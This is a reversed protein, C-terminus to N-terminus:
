GQMSRDDIFNQMQDIRYDDKRMSNSLLKIELMEKGSSTYQDWNTLGTGVNPDHNNVFSVFYRRFAKSPSLDLFYEFLIDSAHFTGLFPVIDHLASSFFTWVKVDSSNQIMLRRPAQFILDGFFASMRKWQPTLANLLGTRFPSGQSLSAPYLTLIRDLTEDTAKPALWKIWKRVDATTTANFTLAGFLTGEDENSGTIYPVKTFQGTKFLDYGLKPIIDGDPRPGFALTMPLAGFLDSFGYYNYADQIVELSQTRLCELQNSADACGAAKVFTNYGEVAHETTIDDLPFPGGSQLICAHFLKKNNYSNDGGYAIMQSAVSMAGASEGVITVKDPNGGFEAIHDQIWQLALRQDRLGNNTNGEAQLESSALFGYPGVRYSISVYVIPQNMDMSEAVLKNGPYGATSGVLFSGGYIYVMVPLNDGEKTGEPRFVNLYLCDESMSVFGDIMDYLPSRLYSPLVQGLNVVKDVASTVGAPDLQMCGPKFDYAELGSYSGSYKVPKRFRLNGTPPEAFPIGKFTDVKGERVGTIVQNSDLTVQPASSAASASALALASTALHAFLKM